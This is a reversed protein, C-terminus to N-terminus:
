RPRSENAQNKQAVVIQGQKANRYQYYTRSPQTPPMIAQVQPVARQAQFGETQYPAQTRYRNFGANGYFPKKFYTKGGTGGRRGRQGVTLASREELSKEIVGGQQLGVPPRGTSFSFGFKAGGPAYPNDIYQLDGARDAEHRAQREVLPQLGNPIKVKDKLVTKGKVKSKILKRRRFIVTRVKIHYRLGIMWCNYTKKLDSVIKKHKVVYDAYTDLGYIERAYREELDCMEIFDGYTLQRELIKLSSKLKDSKIKQKTEADEDHLSEILNKDFLMLPVYSRLKRFGRDWKDPLDPLDASEFETIEYCLEADEGESTSKSSSDGSSSTESSPDSSSSSDSVKTSKKKSSTKKKKKKKPKKVDSDDSSQSSSDQRKRSKMHETRKVEEDAEEEEMNRIERATEIKRENRGSGKTKNEKRLPTPAPTDPVLINREPEEHVSEEEVSAQVLHGFSDNFDAALRIAESGNTGDIAKALAELLTTCSQAKSGPERGQRSSGAGSSTCYTEM